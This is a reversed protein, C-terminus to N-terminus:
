HLQIYFSNISHSKFFSAHDWLLIFIKGRLSSKLHITPLIYFNKPSMIDIAMLIDM